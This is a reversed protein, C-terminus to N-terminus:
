RGTFASEVNNYGAMTDDVPQNSYSMMRNVRNITAEDPATHHFKYYADQRSKDDGRGIKGLMEDSGKQAYMNALFMADAQEDDWEQPNDSIGGIFEDDFGMNRMRNRGTDVSADTFQYVGKASTTGAAAMPNDDSEINRVQRSWDYMNKAYADREEPAIGLRDMQKDLFALSKGGFSPAQKERQSSVPQSLSEQPMDGGYVKDKGFLGRLRGLFGGLAM